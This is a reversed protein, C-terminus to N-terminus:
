KVLPLAEFLDGYKKSQSIYPCEIGFADLVIGYVDTNVFGTLDANENVNEGGIAFFSNLEDESTGGYSTGGRVGGHDTVLIYLTNENRGLEEYKNYIKGIYGDTLGLQTMYDSSGFGGEFHVGGQLVQRMEVLLLSPDNNELYGGECVLMDTIENDVSNEDVPAYVGGEEEVMQSIELSSAFCAVEKEPYAEKVQGLFTKVSDRESYVNRAADDRHYFGHVLANTGTLISARESVCNVPSAARSTTSLGFIKNINPTNADKFFDGAGDIMFVVVRDYGLVTEPEFIDAFYKIIKVIQNRGALGKPDLKGAGVGNVIGLSVAWNMADRAWESTDNGDTFEKLFDMGDEPYEYGMFDAFNKMIVTLQERNVNVNPMFEGKDNGNVIKNAGAWSVAPAYWAGTEVDKFISESYKGFDAGAYKSLIQVVMARTTNAAPAFSTDSTGNVLSNTYCFEVSEYYWSNKDTDTFPLENYKREFDTFTNGCEECSRSRKGNATEWVSFSHGNAKITNRQTLKGCAICKLAQEGGCMCTPYETIIDETDKHSCGEDALIYPYGNEICYKEGYSNKYVKVETDGFDFAWEGLHEVTEPITVSKLSYCESFAFTEIIKVTYPLEISELNSCGMFAGYGIRELKEPFEIGNISSYTCLGSGLETVTLDGADVNCKAVSDVIEVKDLRARMDGIDTYASGQEANIVPVTMIIMLTALFVSIFRKM